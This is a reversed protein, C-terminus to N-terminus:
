AFVSGCSLAMLLMAAQEEEGLKRRQKSMTSRPRQLVVERGLAVLKRKLSFGLKNGNIGSNSSGDSQSNSANVTTTPTNTNKKSKKDEKNLGLLARRKKRSRIGCANCLSQM